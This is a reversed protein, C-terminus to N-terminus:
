KKRKILLYTESGIGSNQTLLDLKNLTAAKVCVNECNTAKSINMAMLKKYDKLKPKELYVMIDINVIEFGLDHIRKVIEELILSSKIGKINEDNDPYFDGLDGLSTSGLLAEAVSHYIVDADSHGSLAPYDNFILGGLILTGSESFKHYDLSHGVFYEYNKNLKYEIYDLDDKTTLKLNNNKTLYFFPQNNEFLSIEDTIDKENNLIIPFLKKNFFQPTTIQYINDRNLLTINNDEVKRLTNVSKQYTTGCEYNPMLQLLERIDDKEILPRAADHILVYDEQVLKLAEKVSDQRRKGGLILNINQYKTNNLYEKVNDFDIKSVVLYIKDFNFDYFKRLSYIYLPIQNIKYLVKNTTDITNNSEIFRKGSGALLLILAKTLNKVQKM